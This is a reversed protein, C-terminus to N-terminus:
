DISQKKKRMVDLRMSPTTQGKSEFSQTHTHVGSDSEIREYLTNPRRKRRAKSIAVDMDAMNVYVSVGPSNGEDDDVGEFGGSGNPRSGGGTTSQVRRGARGIVIKGDVLVDFTLDNKDDNGNGLPPPLRKKELLVDPFSKKIHKSMTLFYPRLGSSGSYQITVIVRKDQMTMFKSFSMPPSEPIVDTAINTTINSGHKEISIALLNKEYDRTADGNVKAAGNVKMAADLAEGFDGGSVNLRCDNRTGTSDGTGVLFKPISMGTNLIRKNIPASLSRGSSMFGHVRISSTFLNVILFWKM